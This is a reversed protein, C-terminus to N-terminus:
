REKLERDLTLLYDNKSIEWNIPEIKSDALMAEALLDVGHHIRQIGAPCLLEVKQVQDVLESVRNLVDLKVMHITNDDLCELRSFADAALIQNKYYLIFSELDDTNNGREINFLILFFMHWNFDINILECVTKALNKSFTDEYVLDREFEIQTDVSVNEDEKIANLLFFMNIMARGYDELDETNNVRTIYEVIADCSMKFNVTFGIQKKLKEVYTDYIMKSLLKKISEEQNVATEDEARKFRKYLVHLQSDIMNLSKKISIMLDHVYDDVMLYSNNKYIIKHEIEGWFLNVLAKIQLEMRVTEKGLQYLGDIKYIDFGNKQKQPQYDSLKLKIRPMNASYYYVNDDTECFLEKLM